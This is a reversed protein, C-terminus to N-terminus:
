KNVKHAHLGYNESVSKVKAESEDDLKKMIPEKGLGGFARDRISVSPMVIRATEEIFNNVNEMTLIEGFTLKSFKLKFEEKKKDDLRSIFDNKKQEIMADMSAQRGADSAKKILEDADIKKNLDVVEGNENLTKGSAELKKLREEAAEKAKRLERINPNIDKELETLKDNAAKLDDTAKKASETAANLEDATPVEIENGEKDYAKMSM